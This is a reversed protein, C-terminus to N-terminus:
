PRSTVPCRGSKTKPFAIVDRIKSRGCLHAVFRDVGLGFGAVPPAGYELSELLCGLNRVDARTLGLLQLMRRQVDMRHNVVSGSGLEEGDLVLDFSQGTLELLDGKRSANLFREADTPGVFPNNAPAIGNPANPDSEFLPFDTIWVFRDGPPPRSTGAYRYLIRRLRRARNWHGVWLSVGDEVPFPKLGARRRLDDVTVPHPLFQHSLREPDVYGLHEFGARKAARALRDWDNTLDIGAPTRAVVLQAASAATRGSLRVPLLEVPSDLRLDPKDTGFVAMSEAYTLRPFPPPETLDLERCVARVAEEVLDMLATADAFAMEIHLQTFEPQRDARLDEDRFCRAFQFYREVGGSVLLQGYLQSSQPLSYRLADSRGSRVEFEKAGTRATAALIPTEVAIFGHGRLQSSVTHVVRDRTVLLRLVDPDRFELYRYRARVNAPASARGAATFPVSEATNLIDLSYCRIWSAGDADDHRWGTVRVVAEAHIRRFVAPVDGPADCCSVRCLGDLTRLTFYEGARDVDHVWGAAHFPAPYADNPGEGATEV